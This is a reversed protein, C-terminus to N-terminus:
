NSPANFFQNAQCYSDTGVDVISRDGRLCFTQWWRGSHNTPVAYSRVLGTANYVRIVAGSENLQARKTCGGYWNTQLCENSWNYVSYGRRAQSWASGKLTITEPGYGNVVDVDLVADGGLKNRDNWVVQDPRASGFELHSDLDRPTADWSLVIRVEDSQLTPSVLINQSSPTASGASIVTRYATSVGQGSVELTYNGAPVNNIAFSGNSATTVTPIPTSGDAYTAVAGGTVNVGPRIRVSLGEMGSSTNNIANIARGAISAPPDSGPIMTIIDFNTTTNAQINVIGEVTKYGASIFRIKWQGASLNFINYNPANSFTSFGSTLSSPQVGGIPRNGSVPHVVELNYTGTFSHGGPLRVSGALNGSGVNPVLPVSVTPISGTSPVNVAIDLDEFGDATIRLIYNGPNINNILFEGSSNTTPGVLTQDNQPDANQIRNSSVGCTFNNSLGTNCDRRVDAVFEGNAGARGILVTATGINAASIANFINGVIQRRPLHSITNMGQNHVVPTTTYSDTASSTTNIAFSGNQTHGLPDVVVAQYSSQRFNYAEGVKHVSATPTDGVVLSALALPLATSSAGAALKGVETLAYGVRLQDTNLSPSLPVVFSNSGGFSYAGGSTSTVHAVPNGSNDTNGLLVVMMGNFSDHNTVAGLVGSRTDNALLRDAVRISGAIQSRNGSPTLTINGADYPQGNLTLTMPSNPCDAGGGNCYNQYGPASIYYAWVGAVAQFYVSNDARVEYVKNGYTSYAWPGSGQHTGICTPTVNGTALCNTLIAPSSEGLWTIALDRISDDQLLYLLNVPPQTAAPRFNIVSGPVYPLSADTVRGTIESPKPAININTGSITNVGGTPNPTFVVSSSTPFTTPNSSTGAFAQVTYVGATLNPASLSYAGSGTITTSNLVAGSSSVLQITFVTDSDVVAVNSLNGSVAISSSTAADWFIDTRPIEVNTTLGPDNGQFTFRVTQSEDSFSRGSDSIGSGLVEVIYNGNALDSFSFSYNGSGDTTTTAIVQNDNSPDRLNVVVGSKGGSTVLVGSDNFGPSSVNGTLSAPGGNLYLREAEIAGVNVLTVGGDSTPDYVFNFDEHAHNLGLGNEILVRYNNNPLDDIDFQFSGDANLNTTAVVTGNSAVIQVTIASYDLCNPPLPAGAEGCVDPAHSGNVVAQISGSIQAPGSTAVEQVASPSPIVGGPAPEGLNEPLPNGNADTSVSSGSAGGAGLLLWLMPDNKKKSCAGILSISLILLATTLKGWSRSNRKM